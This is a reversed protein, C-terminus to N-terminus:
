EVPDPSTCLVNVRACHGDMHPPQAFFQFVVWRMGGAKKRHPTHTVFEFWSTANASYRTSESSYMRFAIRRSRLLFEKSSQGPRFFIFGIAEWIEIGVRSTSPMTKMTAMDSTMKLSNIDGGDSSNANIAKNRPM